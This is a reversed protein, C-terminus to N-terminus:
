RHATDYGPNVVSVKIGDNHIKDFLASNFGNVGFKTGCDQFFDVVSIDVIPSRM